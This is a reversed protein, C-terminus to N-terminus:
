SNRCAPRCGASDPSPFLSASRGTLWYVLLGIYEHSAIDLYILNDALQLAIGPSDGTRYDVPWPIVTWGLKGAIGMARPIQSAHAIVLWNQGPEPRAIARSYVFNEWTNRARTEFTVRNLDAGLERMAAVAAPTDHGSSFILRLTPYHRMVDIAARYRGESDIVAADGRLAYLRASEGGGLVLAGEVHNPWAPHPFRDELIKVAWKGSPVLLFLTLVLASSWAARTVWPKGLAAGACLLCIVVVAMFNGPSLLPQFMQAMDYFEM